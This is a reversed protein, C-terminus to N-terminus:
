TLTQAVEQGASRLRNSNTKGIKHYIDASIYVGGKETRDACLMPALTAILGKLNLRRRRAVTGGAQGSQKADPKLPADGGRKSQPEGNPLSCADPQNLLSNTQQRKSASGDM